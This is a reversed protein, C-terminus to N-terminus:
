LQEQYYCSQKYYRIFFNFILVYFSLFGKFAMQLGSGMFDFIKVFELMTQTFPISDVVPLSAKLEVLNKLLEKYDFKNSEVM